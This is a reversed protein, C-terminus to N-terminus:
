SSVRWRGILSSYQTVHGAATSHNTLELRRVKMEDDIDLTVLLRGQLGYEVSFTAEVAAERYVRSHIKVVDEEEARNLIEMFAESVFSTVEHGALGSSVGWVQGRAALSHLDTPLDGDHLSIVFARVGARAATDLVSGLQLSAPQQGTVLVLVGPRLDGRYDALTGLGTDLTAGLSPPAAAPSTPVRRPLRSALEARNTDTLVSPPLLVAGPGAVLSVTTGSALTLLFRLVARRAEQWRAQRTGPGLALVLSYHRPGSVVYRLRPAAFQGAEAGPEAEVSNQATFDPHSFVLSRAPRHQCLLNQKTPALMNLARGAGCFMAGEGRGTDGGGGEECGWTRVMDRGASYMESCISENSVYKCSEM